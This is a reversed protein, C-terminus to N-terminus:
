PKVACLKPSKELAALWQLVDPKQWPLDHSVVPATTKELMRRKMDMDIEVYVHTTNIDAHGLWYSVMNIDNGARLLHMATTHRITHPNVARSRMSPCQNRASAAYKSLIQRIGFRTIPVGNANLFLQEAAPDHPNRVKLYAQLAQAMEPWLPCSRHKKGKGLLSIQATAGQLRLDPIKIGVIESVRAGTNYLLLLLAKDRAATRANVNVADLLAQMEDQEMYKVTKHQTRKLPITRIRQCQLLLVPEERAIFGFFVRIAALRANRTRPTCGRVNELHDLFALVLAEDIEEVSLEDASKRLTDAAFCLLLKIADRYALLTNTALGKQIPLYHSFFPKMFKALLQKM